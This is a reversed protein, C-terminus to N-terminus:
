LFFQRRKDMLTYIFEGAAKQGTELAMTLRRVQPLLHLLLRGKQRLPLLFGKAGSNLLDHFAQMLGDIH